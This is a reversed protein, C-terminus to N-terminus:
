TLLAAIILCFTSRNDSQKVKTRGDNEVIDETTETHHNFIYVNINLKKVLIELKWEHNFGM